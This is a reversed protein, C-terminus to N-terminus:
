GPGHTPSDLHSSLPGRSFFPPSRAKVESMPIPHPEVAEEWFLYIRLEPFERGIREHLRRAYEKEDKNYACGDGM